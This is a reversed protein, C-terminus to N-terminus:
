RLDRRLVTAEWSRYNYWKLGINTKEIAYTHVGGSLNNRNNWDSVVAIDGVKMAADLALASSYETVTAGYTRLIDGLKYPNTGFGGYGMQAGPTIETQYTLRSYSVPHGTLKLANYM